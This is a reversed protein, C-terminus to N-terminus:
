ARWTSFRGYSISIGCVHRRKYPNCWRSLQFVTEVTKWKVLDEIKSM